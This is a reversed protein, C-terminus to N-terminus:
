VKNWSNYYLYRLHLLIMKYELDSLKQESIETITVGAPNVLM